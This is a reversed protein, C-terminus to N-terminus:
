IGMHHGVENLSQPHTVSRSNSVHLVTLDDPWTKLTVVTKIEREKKKKKNTSPTSFNEKVFHKSMNQRMVM